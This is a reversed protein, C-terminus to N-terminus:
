HIGHGIMGGTRIWGRWVDRDYFVHSAPSTYRRSNSLKAMLGGQVARIVDKYTSREIGIGTSNYFAVPNDLGLQLRLMETRFYQMYTDDIKM